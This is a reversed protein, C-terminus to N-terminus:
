AWLQINKSTRAHDHNTIILQQLQIRNNKNILITEISTIKSADTAATIVTAIATLNCFM